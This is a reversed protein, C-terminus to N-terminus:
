LLARLRWHDFRSHCLRQLRAHSPATDPTPKVVESNKLITVLADNRSHPVEKLQEQLRAAELACLRRMEELPASVPAPMLSQAYKAYGVLERLVDLWPIVDAYQGSAPRGMQFQDLRLTRKLNYRDHTAPPTLDLCELTPMSETAGGPIGRHRAGVDRTILLTWLPTTDRPPVPINFTAYLLTVLEFAM